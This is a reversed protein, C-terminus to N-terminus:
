LFLFCKGNGNINWTSSCIHKRSLDSSKRFLYITALLRPAYLVLGANYLVFYWLDVYVQVKHLVKLNIAINENRDFVKSKELYLLYSLFECLDADSYGWVANDILIYGGFHFYNAVDFIRFSKSCCNWEMENWLTKYVDFQYRRCIHM